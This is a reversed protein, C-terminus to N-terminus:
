HRQKFGCSLTSCHTFIREIAMLKAITVLPVLDDLVICSIGRLIYSKKSQRMNCNFKLLWEWVNFMINPTLTEPQQFKKEMQTLNVSVSM